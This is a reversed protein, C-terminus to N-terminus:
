QLRTQTPTGRAFYIRYRAYLIHIGGSYIWGVTKHQCTMNLKFFNLPHFLWPRPPTHVYRDIDGTEKWACRGVRSCVSTGSSDASPTWTQHGLHCEDRTVSRRSGCLDWSILAPCPRPAPSNLLLLLKDFNNSRDSNARDITPSISRALFKKTSYCAAESNFQKDINVYFRVARNNPTSDLLENLSRVEAFISQSFIFLFIM